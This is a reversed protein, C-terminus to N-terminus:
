AAAGPKYNCRPCNEEIARIRRCLNGEEHTTVGTMENTHSYGLERRVTQKIETLSGNTSKAMRVVKFHNLIAQVGGILVILFVIVLSAFDDPLHSVLESM